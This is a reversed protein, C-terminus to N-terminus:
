DAAQREAMKKLIFDRLQRATAFDMIALARDSCALAEDYRGLKTLAFAANHRTWPDRPDEQLMAHYVALAEDYRKLNDLINAKRWRAAYM